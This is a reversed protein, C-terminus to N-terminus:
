GFDIGVIEHDLIKPIDLIIKSRDTEFHVVQGSVLLSVNKVKISDPINVTVQCAIPLLERFPGKMMMPNTLNVLHVTMSDKQRWVSVDMVGAGKVEVIPEENLAWKITNALLKGHDACLIQWFSRDIDGPFYSVRGHGTDNLYLERIDTDSIRPYVHEMPLDPYSPILTVPSPLAMRPKVKVQYVTNIIRFADELGALVPHFVGSVPDSMLRLYSNQMPGETGSNFSAGFIDALGFDPRRIGEKDYLSTEFTAIISGGNEVFKRLLDCQEDSLQAINPLILLRYPKLYEQDILRDNVMEFPVRAEILAHYMGSSHDGSKQQWLEAGYNSTQESFVLGVRALSTINRLYKENRYLVQYIKEVTNLWRKDYLV